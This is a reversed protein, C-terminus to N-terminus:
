QRQSAAELLRCGCVGLKDAGTGYRNDQLHALLAGPLWSHSSSLVM